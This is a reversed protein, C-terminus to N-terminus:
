EGKHDTILKKIETLTMPEDETPTPRFQKLREIIFQESVLEGRKNDILWKWVGNCIRDRTDQDLDAIVARYQPMTDDLYFSGEEILITEKATKKRDYFLKPDPYKNYLEESKCIDMCMEQFEDDTFDDKMMNFLFSTHTESVPVNKFYLLATISEDFKTRNM